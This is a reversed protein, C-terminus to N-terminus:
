GVPKIVDRLNGSWAGGLLEIGLFSALTDDRIHAIVEFQIGVLDVLQLLDEILGLILEALHVVPHVGFALGNVGAMQLPDLGDQAGVLQREVVLPSGIAVAFAFLALM